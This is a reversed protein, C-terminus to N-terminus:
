DSWSFQFEYADRYEPVLKVWTFRSGTALPTTQEPYLAAGVHRLVSFKSVPTADKFDFITTLKDTPSQIAYNWSEEASTFGGGVRYRVQFEFITGKAIPALPRFKWRERYSTAKRREISLGVVEVNEIIGSTEIDRDIERVEREARVLFRENFYALEGRYGSFSALYSVDLFHLQPDTQSVPAPKYTLKKIGAIIEVLATDQGIGWDVYRYDLLMPPIQCKEVLVPILIFDPDKRRKDLAARLEERVWSSSMSQPSMLIVFASARVLGDEVRDSLSEGAVVEWKDFWVELGHEALRNAIYEAIQKDAFNHSLFILM